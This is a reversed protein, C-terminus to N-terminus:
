SSDSSYSRSKKRRGSGSRSRSRSKRKEKVKEASEERKTEERAVKVEGCDVIVVKQNPKDSSTTPM